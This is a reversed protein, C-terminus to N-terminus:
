GPTAITDPRRQQPSGTGGMGATNRADLTSGVGAAGAMTDKRNVLTGKDRLKGARTMYSGVHAAVEFQSAEPNFEPTEVFALFLSTIRRRLGELAPVSRGRNLLDAERDILDSIERTLGCDFEKVTYKVHLLVDLREETSVGPLNLGQYLHMLERARITFPTHVEVNDGNQAQWRKPAAMTRLAHDVRRERNVEAAVLRLRDVTQLLKTEKYLVRELQEHQEEHELDAHKIHRTQHMRWAELESQLLSFDEATRPQVRRRIERQRREEEQQALKEAEIRQIRAAEDRKHREAAARKRGLHGRWFRQIVLAKEKKVEMLEAATQYPQGDRWPRPVMIVDRAGDVYVDPRAMQTGHERTTQGRGRTRTEKTQTERTLKRDAETWKAVRRTQASAHHYVAGTKKHRYGGLYKRREQERWDMVVRITRGHAVVAGDEGRAPAMEVEIVEVGAIRGVAPHAEPIRTQRLHLEFEVGDGAAVGVESISDDHHVILNGYKVVIDEWHLDFEEAFKVAIDKGTSRSTLELLAELGRQPATCMAMVQGGGEEGDEEEEQSAVSVMPREFALEDDGGAEEAPSAGGDEAPADAGGAADGAAPEDGQDVADDAAPEDTQDAADAAEPEADEAGDGAEPEAAAEPEEPADQAPTDVPAEEDQAPPAEEAPADAPAEEGGAPEDGGEPAPEAAEDEAAAEAVPEAPQEEAQQEEPAPAPQEADSMVFVDRHATGARHVLAGAPAADATWACHRGTSALDRTCDAEGPQSARPSGSSDSHGKRISRFAHGLAVARQPM